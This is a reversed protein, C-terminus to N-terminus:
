KIGDKRKTLEKNNLYLNIYYFSYIIYIIIFPFKYRVATGSNFSVLAYIIIGLFLFGNLFIVENIKFLNMVKNKYLIFFIILMIIVNEIFQMVQLIGSEKWPLPRFMFHITDPIIVMFLDYFSTIPIFVSITNKYNEAFFANRYKNLMELSFYAEYQYLIIGIIFFIIINFTRKVRSFFLLWVTFTVLIILLNQFKIFILISLIILSILYKHQLLYYIGIFMVSFILMDRLALSSYLLLSPFLLYFYISFTNNFIGKKISFIFVFLYLLYNIMGISYLSEIFPIPFLAFFTGAFLVTRSNEDIFFDLDRLSNAVNFYRYQDPMLSSSFLFDNFLFISFLHGVLLIFVLKNFKYFKNLILLITLIYILNIFDLLM